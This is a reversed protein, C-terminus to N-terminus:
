QSVSADSEMRYDHFQYTLILKSTGSKQEHIASLKAWMQAGITCTSLLDLKSEDLATSLIFRAKTNKKKWAISEQTRQPATMTGDVIEM